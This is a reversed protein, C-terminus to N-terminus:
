VLCPAFVFYNLNGPTHGVHMHMFASIEAAGSFAILCVQFPRMGVSVGLLSNLEHQKLSAFNLKPDKVLIVGTALCRTAIALVPLGSSM